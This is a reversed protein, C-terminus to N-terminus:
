HFVRLSYENSNFYDSASKKLNTDVSLETTTNGNANDIPSKVVATDGFDSLEEVPSQTNEIGAEEGDDPKAKLEDSLKQIKDAVRQQQDNVIRGLEEYYEVTRQRHANEEAIRENELVEQQRLYERDRNLNEIRKQIKRERIEEIQEELIKRHKEKNSKDKIRKQTQEEHWQQLNEQFRVACRQQFELRKMSKQQYVQRVTIAPGCVIQADQVYQRCIDRLEGIQQQSFCVRISPVPITLFPHEPKITKLLMTYKGCLLASDECGMLFSPVSQQKITYAKDWFHKTNPQYFDVFEIFLEKYPDEIFGHFIWTEFKKFYVTCCEKLITFLLMALDNQTVTVFKRYLYNLFESGRPLVALAKEMPVNSRPHVRLIHSLIEIQQIMSSMRLLLQAMFTDDFMYVFQNFAMLFTAVGTCLTKFVFGDFKHKFDVPNRSLLLQLRRYCCGCELFPLVSSEMTEPSINEVSVNEEMRFTLTKEDFHFSDSPIGTLLLKVDGIFQSLQVFKVESKSRSAFALLQNTCDVESSFRANLYDMPQGLNDWRGCRIITSDIPAKAPLRSTEPREHMSPTFYCDESRTCSTILLKNSQNEVPIGFFSKECTSNGRRFRLVGRTDESFRLMDPPLFFYPSRQVAASSNFFYQPMTLENQDSCKGTNRLKLLFAMVSQGIESRFYEDREVLRCCEELASFKVADHGNLKCELGHLYLEHADALNSDPSTKLITEHMRGKLTKLKSQKIPHFQDAQHLSSCLENILQYVSETVIM